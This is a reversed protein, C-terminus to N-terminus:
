DMTKGFPGKVWFYTPLFWEKCFEEYLNGLNCLKQWLVSTRGKHYISNIKQTISPFDEDGDLLELCSKLFVDQNIIKERQEHSSLYFEEVELLEDYIIELVPWQPQAIWFDYSKVISIFRLIMEESDNYFLEDRQYNFKNFAGMLKSRRALFALHSIVNQSSLINELPFYINLARKTTHLKRKM